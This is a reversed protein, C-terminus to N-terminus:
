YHTGRAAISSLLGTAVACMISLGSCACSCLVMILKVLSLWFAPEIDAENFKAYFGFSNISSSRDLSNVLVVIQDIFGWLGLGSLTIAKLVGICPQGMYCRDFGCCSPVIFFQILVLVLKNKLPAARQNKLEFEIEGFVAATVGKFSGNTPADSLYHALQRSDHVASSATLNGDADAYELQPLEETKVRSVKQLLCANEAKPATSLVSSAFLFLLILVFRELCIRM